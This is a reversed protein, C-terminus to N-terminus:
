RKYDFEQVYGSQAETSITYFKDKRNSLYISIREIRGDPFFSVINSECELSLSEHINFIKGFKGQIRVFGGEDESDPDRTLWYSDYESGFNLRYDTRESIARAQAYRMLYTLNHSTDSLLLNYYSNRLNPTSLGILAGLLIVVLLLEIFTFGTLFNKKTNKFKNELPNFGWALPKSIPIFGTKNRRILSRGTLLIM